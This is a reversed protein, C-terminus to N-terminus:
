GEKPIQALVPLNTAKRLDDENYIRPDFIVLLSALGVGLMLALASGALVIKKRSPRIPKGPFSAKDIIAYEKEAQKREIGTSLESRQLQAQIQEHKARAVQREGDLEYWRQELRAAENIGAKIPDVPKAPKEKKPGVRRPTSLRAIKRDIGALRKRTSTVKGAAVNQAQKAVTLQGSMQRFYEQARKVDPHKDTYKRKLAALTTRAAAMNEQARAVQQSGRPNLGVLEAQLRGKAALADRLEPSSRTLLRRALRSPSRGGPKQLAATGRPMGTAPDIQFEPHEAVFSALDSEIKKLQTKVKAAENEMFAQTATAAGLKEKIHKSIFEDVLYACAKQALAKDKYEFAIWFSDNGVTNYTIADRLYELIVEPASVDREKPYLDLTRAMTLLMTNSATFQGVQQRLFNEPLGGGGEWGLSARDISPKYAVMARSQYIRTSTLAVALSASVGLVCIIGMLLWRRMVRRAFEIYKRVQSVLNALADEAM